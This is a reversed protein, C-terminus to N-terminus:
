SLYSPALVADVRAVRQQREDLVYGGVEVPEAEPCGIAVVVIVVPGEGDGVWVHESETRLLLHDVDTWTLTPPLQCRHLTPTTSTTPLLSIGDSFQYTPAPLAAPRARPTLTWVRPPLM